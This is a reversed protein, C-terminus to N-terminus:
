TRFEGGRGDIEKRPLTIRVTIGGEPNNSIQIGNGAGFHMKLRENVNYLGIGSYRAHQDSLGARLEALKEEPISEGNNSVNVILSEEQEAAHIEIQLPTRKGHIMANEVIPQLTFKLIANSMFDQPVSIRVDVNEHFRIKQLDLYAEIHSLEDKLTVVEQKVRMTYELLKGLKTIMQSVHESGSLMAMWKISNLTNFLFHPHIQAQLAQFRAEEKRRQEERLRALLQQLRDLMENFRRGLVAIEDEGHVDVYSHFDGQGLRNMSRVMDNIPKTFRFMVYIFVLTFVLFWGCLWLISQDRIGGLQQWLEQQPVIQVIRWGLSPLLETTISYGKINATDAEKLQRLLASTEEPNLPSRGGLMNGASDTLLFGITGQSVNATNLFVSAPIGIFIAASGTRDESGIWRSLAFYPEKSGAFQQLKGTYPFQWVPWGRLQVTQEYWEEQRATHILDFQVAREIPGSATTYVYGREDLVTIVAGSHLLIDRISALKQLVSDYRRLSEYNTYWDPDTALLAILEPDYMILNSAKLVRETLDNMNQTLRHLAEENTQRVEETVVDRLSIYYSYFVTTVPIIICIFFAVLMKARFSRYLFRFQKM